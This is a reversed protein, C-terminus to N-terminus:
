ADFYFNLATFYNEQDEYIQGKTYFSKAKFYIIEINQTGNSSAIASDLYQIAKDYEKNSKFYWGYWFYSRM